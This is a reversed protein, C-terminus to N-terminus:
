KKVREVYEGTETNVRLVDEEKVFLPVQVIYGTELTAPKSGGSATDGRVGPPTETVKLEVKPPLQINIPNDRFNIVDVDVGEILYNIYEGLQEKTFVFQEFTENDMFNYENGDAYTFQAKTRNIDAEALKDSGQYVKYLTSGTILNKVKVKVVSGGRAQKSQAYSLVLYPEDNLIFKIGVKLDTISLM